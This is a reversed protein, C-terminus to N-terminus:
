FVKGEVELFCENKMMSYICLKKQHFDIVGVISYAVTEITFEHYSNPNAIKIWKEKLCKKIEEKQTNFFLLDDIKYYYLKICM